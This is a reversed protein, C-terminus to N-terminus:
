AASRPWGADCRAPSSCSAVSGGVLIAVAGARLPWSASIVGVATLTAWVGAAVLGGMTVLFLSFTAGFRLLFRRSPRPAEPPPWPQDAPWWTPRCGKGGVWFRTM